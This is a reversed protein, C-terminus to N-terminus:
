NMSPTTEIVSKQFGDAISILFDYRTTGGTTETTM